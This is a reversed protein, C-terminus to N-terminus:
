SLINNRTLEERELGLTLAEHIQVIHQDSFEVLVVQLILELSILQVRQKSFCVLRAIARIRFPPVEQLERTQLDDIDVTLTTNNAVNLWDAQRHALHDM